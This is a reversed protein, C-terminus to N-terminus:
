TTKCSQKDLRSEKILNCLGILIGVEGHYFRRKFVYAKDPNKQSNWINTLLKGISYGIRLAGDYSVTTDNKQELIKKNSKYLIGLALYQLYRMITILQQERYCIGNKKLEKFVELQNNCRDSLYKVFLIVIQNM